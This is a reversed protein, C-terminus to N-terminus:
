QDAFGALWDLEASLSWDGNGDLWNTDLANESHLCNSGNRMYCHGANGSAVEDTQVIHYGSGNPRYCSIDTPKCDTLGTVDQTQKVVDHPFGRNLFGDNVGNAVRLHDVPLSYSGATMCSKVPGYLSYTVGEGMGWAARVRPDYDHALTAIISGQSFGGTVIGKSCDASARGCVATIASQASEPDFICQAKNGITGCTGFTATAYEVSVSVFGREAMAQIAAQASANQYSETTGVMYVFVPHKANDAPEIGDISYGTNCSLGANGAGTYSLTFARTGVVSGALAPHMPALALVLLALSCRATRMM